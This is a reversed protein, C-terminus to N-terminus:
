AGRALIVELVFKSGFFALALLLMASLTWRVARRGRWGYRLRGHLLAGLVVWALLSLVTKHVLHQAFLNEVFLLGTLLALTLMVFGALILRFMLTEVLTLPPFLGLWAGVRRRRLAREQLWLMIALLAALSLAAYALLSLGAHLQIQWQAAAHTPALHSSLPYLALMVAAFPYVVVGLAGIPRALALAATLAATGLAVLSLAAFFHMDIGHITRWASILAAAHLAVAALALVAPTRAKRAGEGALARVQWVSAAAYFIIAATALLPMM